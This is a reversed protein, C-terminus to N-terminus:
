SVQKLAWTFFDKQNDFVEVEEDEASKLVGEVSTHKGTWGSSSNAMDCFMYKGDLEHLKYITAFGCVAYIKSSDYEIKSKFEDPCLTELFEKQTKDGEDYAKQLNEKKITINNM